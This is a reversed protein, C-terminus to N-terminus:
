YCNIEAIRATEVGPEYTSFVLRVNEGASVGQATDNTWGINDDTASLLTVSVYLSRSCDRDTVVDLAFCSVGGGRCESRTAESWKTAIKGGNGPAISYGEPPTWSAATPSLPDATSDYAEGYVYAAVLVIAIVALCGWGNKKSKPKEPPPPPTAAKAELAALRARLAAVEADNESM